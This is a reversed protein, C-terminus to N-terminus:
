YNTIVTSAKPFFETYVEQRKIWQFYLSSDCWDYLTSEKGPMVRVIRGLLQRISTEDKVPFCIFAKNANKVDFGRGCIKYNAVLIGGKSKFNNTAEEREAKKVGGHLFYVPITTKADIKQFYQLVDMVRDVLVLAYDGENINELIWEIQAEKREIDEDLAARFLHWEKPPINIHVTKGDVKFDDKYEKDYKRTVIKKLVNQNSGAVKVFKGWIRQMLFPYKMLDDYKEKKPTATFGYMRKANSNCLFELHRDTCFKDVEDVIFLECDKFKDSYKVASDYVAITIDGVEKKVGYFLSPKVGLFKEYEKAFQEMLLISHCLVLTKVKYSAVIKASLVTKGIGTDGELLAVRRKLLDNYPKIQKELLTINDKLEIKTKFQKVNNIRQGAQASWYLAGPPLLDNFILSKNESCYRTSKGFKCLEVFKPNPVEYLDLVSKPVQNKNIQM